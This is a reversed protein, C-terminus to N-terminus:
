DAILMESVHSSAPKRFAQVGATMKKRPLLSIEPSKRDYEWLPDDM